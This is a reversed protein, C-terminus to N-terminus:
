GHKQIYNTKRKFKEKKIKNKKRIKVVCMANRNKEIKIHFITVTNGV